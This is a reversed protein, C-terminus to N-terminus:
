DGKKTIHFRTMSEGARMWASVAVWAWGIALIAGLQALPGFSWAFAFIRAALSTM